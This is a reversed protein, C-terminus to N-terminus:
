TFFFKRFQRVAIGTPDPPSFHLSKITKRNAMAGILLAPMDTKKLDIFVTPFLHRLFAFIPPRLSTNQIPTPM